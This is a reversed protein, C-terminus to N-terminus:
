QNCGPQDRPPRTCVEPDDDVGADSMEEPLVAEACIPVELTGNKESNSNVQLLVQDFGRAQPDYWVRVFAAQNRVVEKVDPGEIDFACNQDARIRANKIVLREQGTNRLQIDFRYPEESGVAWQGLHIQKRVVKIQPPDLGEAADCGIVLIWVLAFWLKM